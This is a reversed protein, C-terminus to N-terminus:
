DYADVPEVPVQRALTEDDAAAVAPPLGNHRAIAALVHASPRVRREHTAPDMGILGFPTTWGQAWEFNDVLSWHFYGRLDLGSGVAHALARVHEVIYRRRLADSPDFVGNESVYVPVGLSAAREVSSVLGEPSPEGWDASETKVSNDQVFRGFMSGFRHPTFKLRYRGYYNVGIFDFSGALGPVHVVRNGVPPRCVGTRLASLLAGNVMWDQLRSVQRDMRDEHRAPEVTPLNLALGVPHDPSEDKIAHYAAAHGRLQQRVARSALYPMRRGPPWMGQAYAKLALVTPENITLFADVLDGLETVSARAHDALESVTLPNLWGGARSLWHPLTFHHLTVFTKLGADRAHGLIARYRDVASRDRRGPAVSLRSWELSLRHVNHGLRAAATLDREAWGHEWWGAGRGSGRGGRIREPRHTEWAWWDSDVTHGEVQHSSTAAGWLFGAPFGGGHGVATQAEFM